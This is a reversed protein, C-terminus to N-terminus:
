QIVWMPSTQGDKTLTAVVGPSGTMGTAHRWWTSESELAPTGIFTRPGRTDVHFHHLHGALLLDADRLPSGGFAQGEWWDFHKGARYQHGHVHAVRTGAVDLVVTMEDTEPVYFSVHGFAEPNMRAADSVAILSETDHSDDYRTVGKGAFRTTEGHNGPVAAMSLPLGFPAFEELAHLMTQRTLRIQENLTLPTRWVNAGGQSQFGEIHDGLWAVHIRTILESGTERLERLLDAAKSIAEFARQVTGEAGDGDIKGYQMDGIALVFGKGGGTFTEIYSPARAARVRELLDDIDVTRGAAATGRRGFTFRASTGEDGSPMTWASSRFGTVEWDAPDLDYRELVSRAEGELEAQSKTETKVTATAVDGKVELETTLTGTGARAPLAPATPKALLREALTDTM